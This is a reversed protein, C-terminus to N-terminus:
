YQPILWEVNNSTQKVPKVSLDKKKKKKFYNNILKNSIVGWKKRQIEKKEPFLSLIVEKGEGKEGYEQKEERLKIIM